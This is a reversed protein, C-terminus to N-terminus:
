IYLLNFLILSAALVRSQGLGSSDGLKEWSPSEVDGLFYSVIELVTEWWGMHGPCVFILELIAM